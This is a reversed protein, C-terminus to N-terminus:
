PRGQEQQRLASVMRSSRANNGRLILLFPLNIVAAIVLGALTMWWPNFFVLPIWTLLSLSHVWIARRVEVRYAELSVLDRGPIERKSKGGFLSGLEPLRAAWRAAGIRRFFAPSEHARPRTIWSDRQLWSEPWRPASAGILISLGAIVAIDIVGLLVFGGLTRDV